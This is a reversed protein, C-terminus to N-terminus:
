PISIFPGTTLIVSVSGNNNEVTIFTTSGSSNKGRLYRIKHAVSRQTEHQHLQALIKLKQGDNQQALAEALNDLYTGRKETHSKKVAYYEQYSSQLGM